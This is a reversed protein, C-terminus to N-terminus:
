WHSRRDIGGFARFAPSRDAELGGRDEVFEDSAGVTPSFEGDGRDFWGDFECGGWGFCFVPAFLLGRDAAAAIRDLM